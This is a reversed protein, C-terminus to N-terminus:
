SQINQVIKSLIKVFIQCFGSFNSLFRVFDPFIQCFRSFDSLFRVFDPFIQCFRSFIQCFRSFIRVFNQCFESLNQGGRFITLKEFFFKILITFISWNQFPALLRNKLDQAPCLSSFSLFADRSVRALISPWFNSIKASKSLNEGIKESKTLIKRIQSFDRFTRRSGRLRHGPPGGHDVRYKGSGSGGGPRFVRVIKSM